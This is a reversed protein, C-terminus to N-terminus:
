KLLSEELIKISDELTKQVDLLYYKDVSRLEELQKKYQEILEKTQKSM